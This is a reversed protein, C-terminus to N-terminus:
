LDLNFISQNLNCVDGEGGNTEGRRTACMARVNVRRKENETTKNVNLKKNYM